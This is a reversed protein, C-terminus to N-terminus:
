DKMLWSPRNYAFFFPLAVSIAVDSHDRSMATMPDLASNKTCIVAIDAIV